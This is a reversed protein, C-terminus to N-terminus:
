HSSHIHPTEGEKTERKREKKKKKKLILNLLIHNLMRDKQCRTKNWVISNTLHLCRDIHYYM